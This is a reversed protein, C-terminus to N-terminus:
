EVIELGSGLQNIKESEVSGNSGSGSSVLARKSESSTVNGSIRVSSSRTIIDNINYQSDSQSNEAVSIETDAAWALCNNTILGNSITSWDLVNVEV